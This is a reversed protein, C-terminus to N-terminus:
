DLSGDPLYEEAEGVYTVEYNVKDERTSPSNLLEEGVRILDGMYRDTLEQYNEPDLDDWYDTDTVVTYTKTVLVELVHKAM